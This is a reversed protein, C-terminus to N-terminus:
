VQKSTLLWLYVDAMINIKGGPWLLSKEFFRFIKMKEFNTILQYLAFFM